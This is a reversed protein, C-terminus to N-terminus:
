REKHDRVEEKGEQKAQNTAPTDAADSNKEGEGLNGKPEEKPAEENDM